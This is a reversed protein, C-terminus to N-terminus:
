PYVRPHDPKGLHGGKDVSEMVYVYHINAM